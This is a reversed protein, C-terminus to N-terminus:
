AQRNILCSIQLIKRKNKFNSEYPSIMGASKFNKVVRDFGNEAGYYNFDKCAKLKKSSNASAPPNSGGRWTSAPVVSKLDAGNHGSRYAEM